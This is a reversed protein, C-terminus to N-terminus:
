DFMELELHFLRTINKILHIPFLVGEMYSELHKIEIFNSRKMGKIEVKLCSRPCFNKLFKLLDLSSSSDRQKLFIHKDLFSFNKPVDIELVQKRKVLM